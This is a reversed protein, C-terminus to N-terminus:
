ESMAGKWDPNTVRCLEKSSPDAAVRDQDIKDWDVFKRANDAAKVINLSIPFFGPKVASGSVIVSSLKTTLVELQETCESDFKFESLPIEVKRGKSSAM